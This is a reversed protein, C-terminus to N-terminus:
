DGSPPPFVRYHGFLATHVRIFVSLSRFFSFRTSRFPSRNSATTLPAKAFPPSSVAQWVSFLFSFLLADITRAFNFYRRPCRFVTPATLHHSLFFSVLAFARGDPSVFLLPSQRGNGSFFFLGYDFLYSSFFVRPFRHDAFLSPPVSFIRVSVIQCFKPLIEFFFISLCLSILSSPSCTSKNLSIEFCPLARQRDSLPSPLPTSKRM